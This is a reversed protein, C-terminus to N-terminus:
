PNGQSHRVSPPPYVSDSRGTQEGKVIISGVPLRIKGTRRVLVHKILAREKVQRSRVGPVQFARCAMTLSSEYPILDGREKARRAIGRGETSDSQRSHPEDVVNGVPVFNARSFVYDSLKQGSVVIVM